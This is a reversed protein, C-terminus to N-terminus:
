AWGTAILVATVSHHGSLQGAFVALGVLVSAALMRKGRQRYPEQGDSFCVNLAGTSVAIGAAVNGTIVGLLLPAAVGVTNRVGLWPTLKDSQFKTVTQWFAAWASPREGSM